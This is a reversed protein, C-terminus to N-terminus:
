PIFSFSLVTQIEDLEEIIQRILGQDDYEYHLYTTNTNGQDQYEQIESRVLKQGEYAYSISLKLIRKGDKFEYHKQRLSLGEPNKEEEINRIPEHLKHYYRTYTKDQEYEWLIMQNEFIKPQWRQAYVSSLTSSKKNKNTEPIKPRPDKTPFGQAQSKQRLPRNLSDLVWDYLIRCSACDAFIQVKQFPRDLNDYTYIFSHQLKPLWASDGIEAYSSTDPQLSYEYHELVSVLNNKDHYQQKTQTQGKDDYSTHSILLNNSFQYHAFSQSSQLPHQWIQGREDGQGRRFSSREVNAQTYGLECAQSVSFFPQFDFAWSPMKNQGLCIQTFFGLSLILRLIRTKLSYPTKTM